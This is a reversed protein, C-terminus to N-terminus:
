AIIIVPLELCVHCYVIVSEM